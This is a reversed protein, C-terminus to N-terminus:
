REDSSHPTWVSSSNWRQPVGEGRRLTSGECITPSLQYWAARRWAGQWLRFGCLAACATESSCIRHSLHWQAQCLNHVQVWLCVFVTWESARGCPPRGRYVCHTHTRSHGTQEGSKTTNTMCLLYVSDLSYVSTRCLLIFLFRQRLHSHFVKDEQWRTTFCSNINRQFSSNFLEIM